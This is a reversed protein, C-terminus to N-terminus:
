SMLVRVCRAVAEDVAIPAGDAGELRKYGRLMLPIRCRGAIVPLLTKLSGEDDLDLAANIERNVWESAVAVESLIVVFHPRAEMERVIVQRLVGSGMNHEDYWVDIGQARLGQVFARCYELDTHSHSVFVRPSGREPTLTPMSSTSAVGEEGREPENESGPAASITSTEPTRQPVNRLYGDYARLCVEIAQRLEVDPPVYGTAFFRHAVTGFEYDRGLAAETHLTMSDDLAFGAHTLAQVYSTTRLRHARDRLQERRRAGRFETVGQNLTLYVGSMDERFLWVVYVGHQTTTTERADLLAVWPVRSWNGKGLSWRVRLQPQRRQIPESAVLAEGLTVFTQWLPHRAELTQDKERAVHYQELIFSLRAQIPNLLLAHMRELDDM